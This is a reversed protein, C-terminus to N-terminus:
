SEQLNIIRASVRYFWELVFYTFVCVQGLIGGEDTHQLLTQCNVCFKSSVKNIAGCHSCSLTTTTASSTGLRAAIDPRIQTPCLGLEASAVDSEVTSSELETQRKSYQRYFCFALLLLVVFGVGAGIIAPLMNSVGAGGGDDHTGSTSSGDRNATTTPAKLITVSPLGAQQLKSNIATVTLKAGLADATNKDAAQINMDIRIGAVLLRRSVSIGGGSRATTISEIKDIIVDATSVGAVEAISSKFSKKTGEDFESVTIPLSIAMTVVYLSVSITPTTAESSSSDSLVNGSGPPTATPAPSKVCAGGDPGSSGANCTCATITISGAPSDSNAPCSQCRANGSTAKYTAAVCQTCLQGNDGSFGQNCMCDILKM